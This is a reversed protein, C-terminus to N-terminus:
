SAVTLVEKIGSPKALLLEHASELPTRSTILAALQEPWRRRFQTLDKIAAAFADPGANVTGLVLQNKLVMNRMLLDANLEIPPRLPAVGTLVFVGNTGLHELMKFSVKSAGTAEYVLDIAGVQESIKDIPTDAASIYRAGIGQVLLAKASGQPELSYVFTDFGRAALAMAGLLGVPGAGLVVARRHAGTESGKQEVWPLREQVDWVQILAKEAITLPEVLVAVDRLEAPVPNMYRVSDVVIETMFGHVQNIGRETFEGSFCFDQRGSRCSACNVNACPRRVTPVVLDGAALGSVRAGVEVVEGLSEHGLVLYPSGSPPQGYQFDCIERDTGCIGVQLMRLKVQDDATLKPEPHDTLIRVQKEAPFVAVARM